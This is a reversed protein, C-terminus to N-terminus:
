NAAEITLQEEEGSRGAATFDTEHQAPDGM